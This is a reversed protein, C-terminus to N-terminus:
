IILFIFLFVNYENINDATTRGTSVNASSAPPVPGELQNEFASFKAFLMPAEITTIPHIIAPIKHNTAAPFGLLIPIALLAMNAQTTPVINTKIAAVAQVNILPASPTVPVQPYIFFLPVRSKQLLTGKTNHQTKDRWKNNEAM